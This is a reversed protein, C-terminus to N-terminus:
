VEAFEELELLGAQVMECDPCKFVYVRGLPGDLIDCIECACSEKSDLCVGCYFVYM